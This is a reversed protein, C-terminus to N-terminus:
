IPRDSVRKKARRGQFGGPGDDVAAPLERLNEASLGPLYVDTERGMERKGRMLDTSATNSIM